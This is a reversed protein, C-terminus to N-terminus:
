RKLMHEGKLDRIYEVEDDNLLELYTMLTDLLEYLCNTGSYAEDYLMRLEEHTNIFSMTENDFLFDLIRRNIILLNPIDMQSFKPKHFFDVDILKLLKGTYLINGIHADILILDCDLKQVDNLFAPLANLLKKFKTKPPLKYIPMGDLYTYEYSDVKGRRNKVYITEPILLSNNNLSELYEVYKPFNPHLHHIVKLNGDPKFEKFVTKNDDLLYVKSTKTESLMRGINTQKDMLTKVEM